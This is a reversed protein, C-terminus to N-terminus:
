LQNNKPHIAYLLALWLELLNTLVGESCHTQM